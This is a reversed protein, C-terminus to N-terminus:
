AVPAGGRVLDSTLRRVDDVDRGPGVPELLRVERRQGELERGVARAERDCTRIAGEHDAIQTVATVAHETAHVLIRDLRQGERGVAPRDRAHAAHDM